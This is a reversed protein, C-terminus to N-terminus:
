SLIGDLAALIQQWGGRHNSRAEEDRFKVHTLQIETGGDVESFDLTVTSGDVSFPSEWTFVLQSHREIKLYTGGHPLKDEGAQMVIRFRGGERADAESEPVTMGEGPVMFRALQGPDLWANFVDEIPADIIRSVEVKLDAM